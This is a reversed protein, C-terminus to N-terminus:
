PAELAARIQRVFTQVPMLRRPVTGAKVRYVGLNLGFVTPLEPARWRLFLVVEEGETFEPAGIMVRRYRGVQGNPIRVTVTSGPTGKVVETVQLTVLSEITRPGGTMQSRIQLVRGRVILESDRALTPLDAPVIVTAHAPLCGILWGTLVTCVFTLPKM